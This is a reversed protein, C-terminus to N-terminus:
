KQGQKTPRVKTKKANDWTRQYKDMINGIVLISTSAFVIEERIKFNESISDFSYLLISIALSINRYFPKEDKYSILFREFLYKGIHTSLVAFAVKKFFYNNGGIKSLQISNSIM